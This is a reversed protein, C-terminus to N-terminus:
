AVREGSEQRSSARATHFLWGDSIDDDDAQSPVPAHRLAAWYGVAGGVFSALEIAFVAGTSTDSRVHWALTFGVVLLSTWASAQGRLRHTLSGVPATTYDVFLVTLAVLGVLVSAGLLGNAIDTLAALGTVLALFQTALASAFLYRPLLSVLPHLGRELDHRV